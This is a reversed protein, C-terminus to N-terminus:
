GPRGATPLCAVDHAGPALPSLGKLGYYLLAELKARSLQVFGRDVKPFQPGVILATQDHSPVPACSHMMSM